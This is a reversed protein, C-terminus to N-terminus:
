RCNSRTHPLSGFLSFMCVTNRAPTRVPDRKKPNRLSLYTGLPEWPNRPCGAEKEPSPMVWSSQIFRLSPFAFPPIGWLGVYGLAQGLHVMTAPGPLTVRPPM